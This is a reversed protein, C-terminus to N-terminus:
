RRRCIGLRDATGRGLLTRVYGDATAALDVRRVGAPVELGHLRRLLQGLRDINDPSQADQENWTPGVYRTVLIGHEPNCRIVEPGIGARAVAQLVVAESDRDIQLEQAAAESLRVVLRNRDTTVLWSRNTLGHKIAEVEGGPVM